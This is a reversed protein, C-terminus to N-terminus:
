PHSGKRMPYRGGSVQDEELRDLSDEIARAIVYGAGGMVVVSIALVWQGLAILALAVLSAFAAWIAARSISPREM